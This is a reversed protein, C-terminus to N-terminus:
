VEGKEGEPRKERSAKSFDGQKHSGLRLDGEASLICRQSILV